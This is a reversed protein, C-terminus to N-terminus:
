LLKFHYNSFEEYGVQVLILGWAPAVSPLFRKDKKFLLDYFQSAKLEYTGVRVLAGVLARVMNHCFSNGVIDFGIIITRDSEVDRNKILFSGFSLFSNLDFSRFQAFYCSKVTNKSDSKCFGKFDHEGYISLALENMLNIDVEKAVHWTLDKLLPLYFDGAVLHYRYHRWKASFRAHFSTDVLEITNLSIWPAVLSNLSKRFRKLDYIRHSLDFHIVQRLAHVKTDTRGACVLKVKESTIKQIANVILHEVTLLDNQASFGHLPIGLYAVEAKYRYM